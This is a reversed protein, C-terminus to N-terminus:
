GDRRASLIADDMATARHTPSTPTDVVSVTAVFVYIM